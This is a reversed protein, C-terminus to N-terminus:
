QYLLSQFLLPYKLLRQFPQSLCIALGPTGKSAAQEELRMIARGVRKEEKLAEKSMDKKQSKVLLPNMSALASDVDSMAREISLVYTAYHMMLWAQDTFVDALSRVLATPLM